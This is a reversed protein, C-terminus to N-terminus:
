GTIISFILSKERLLKIIKTLAILFVCQDKVDDDDDNDDNTACMCIQTLQFSYGALSNIKM